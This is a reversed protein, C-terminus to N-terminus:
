RQKGKMYQSPTQGYKKAFSRLFTSYSNFGAMKCIEELSHSHEEDHADLLAKAEELRFDNIFDYFTMAKEQNIYNSLYQRNTGLVLALKNLTMSKDLYYRNDRIITEINKDMLSEHYSARAIDPDTPTDAEMSGNPYPQLSEGEENSISFVKQQVIKRTVFLVFVITVLCYLTDFLLNKDAQPSSFWTQQSVSEFAWLLQVVFLLICLAASWRLDFYEMDGVNDRLMATYRKISILLSVLLALSAALTFIQMVPYVWPRKTIAFLLMAGVFPIEMLLLQGIRFRNPFVLSVAFMMYAGVIIYDYFILLLNLFESFPLHRCVAVVFNNFFGFAHLILVAAFLKQFQYTRHHRFLLVACGILACQTFGSVFCLLLYLSEGNM